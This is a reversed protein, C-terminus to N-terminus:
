AAVPPLPMLTTACPQACTERCAVHLCLDSWSFPAHNNYEGGPHVTTSDIAPTHRRLPMAARSLVPNALLPLPPRGAEKAAALAIVGVSALHRRGMTPDAHVQTDIVHTINM